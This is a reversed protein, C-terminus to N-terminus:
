PESWGVDGLEGHWRPMLEGLLTHRKVTRTQRAAIIRARYRSQGKAEVSEEIEPAQKSHVELVEDPIGLIQWHGLRGSPGHDPAIGYGLGVAVRAAAARGVITAAHLHERWLTTDAAKWGG